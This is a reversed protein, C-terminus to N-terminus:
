TSGTGSASGGGPGDRRQPRPQCQTCPWWVREPRHTGPCQTRLQTLGGRLPSSDGGAASGFTAGAAGASPAAGSFGGEGAGGAAPGIDGPRHTTLAGIEREQARSNRQVRHPSRSASKM